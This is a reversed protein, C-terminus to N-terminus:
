SRAPTILRVEKRESRGVRRTGAQALSSASFELRRSPRNSLSGNVTLTFIVDDSDRTDIMNLSGEETAHDSDLRDSRARIRSRQDSRTVWRARTVRAFHDRTEKGLCKYTGCTCANHSLTFFFVFLLFKCVGDNRM